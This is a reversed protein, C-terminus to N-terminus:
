LIVVTLIERQAAEEIATVNQVSYWDVLNVCRAAVVWLWEDVILASGLRNGM